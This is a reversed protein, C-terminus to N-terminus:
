VSAPAAVPVVERKAQAAQAILKLAAGWGQAPNYFQEQYSLCARRKAEYFGGDSQLRLIANGYGTVDDPPVEVVADQVCAIAPCVSSTIVPRGALVSEVVVQNFGEIFDTTTPVIVAHSQRLMQQMVERSCHGHTRFRASLGAREIAGRLEELASGAGCLDFEIETQGEEQFRRAIELLDFVGKNREIRGAFLIRFPACTAPPAGANAFTERRYTPLFPVIPRPHGGTVERIQGTIDDSASMLAFCHRRFLAGALRNLLRQAKGPAKFKPWLVCHITPALKIGLLPLFFLVFWHTTGEAIVALDAQFRWATWVLWLGYRVEELHYRIGRAPPKPRNELTMRGDQLRDVRSSSSLVYGTAGLDRCVDFFQGSYTLSVQSPDDQGAVWHRYTGIVDGPGAAYLIRLSRNM